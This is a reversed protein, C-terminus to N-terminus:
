QAGGVITVIALPGAVFLTVLAIIAIVMAAAAPGTYRKANRRSDTEPYRTARLGSVTIVVLCAVLVLAAVIAIIAHGM